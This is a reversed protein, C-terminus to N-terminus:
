FFIELRAVNYLPKDEIIRMRNFTMKFNLETEHLYRMINMM